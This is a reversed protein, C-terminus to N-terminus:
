VVSKRDEKAAAQATKRATKVASEKITKERIRSRSQKRKIKKQKEKAAKSRYLNRGADLANTAPKALADAAMYAEYVENGGDMEDLASKAAVSVVAPSVVSKKKVAAEKQAKAKRYSAVGTQKAYMRNERNVSQRVEQEKGQRGRTGTDANTGQTTRGQQRDPVAMSEKRGQVTGYAGRGQVTVNGKRDQVNGSGNTGQAARGAKRDQVNGSDSRGQAYATRGERRDQVTVNRGKYEMGDVATTTQGTKRKDAVHVSSKKLKIKGNEVVSKETSAGATKPGHRVTLVNRGKIKTEPAGKIKLKPKEKTHIVMPKDDVKKINM